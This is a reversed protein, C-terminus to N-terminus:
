GEPKEGDKRLDLERQLRARIYRWEREVTSVSCGIAAATEELSLGAFYRLNVIEGKRPDSAELKRLAEDVELVRPNPAEIPLELGQLDVRQKAGGRKKAKRRRAADVLIRRMARAATAFYHARSAFDHNGSGLRMWVEHVLATAQLTHGADENQMNSRALRRLEDYVAELLERSAQEDGGRLRALLATIPTSEAADDDTM